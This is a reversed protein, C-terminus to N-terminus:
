KLDKAVTDRVATRPDESIYKILLQVQDPIDVLTHASLLTLTHLVVRTFSESPYSPLMELCMSRVVQLLAYSRSIIVTWQIELLFSSVSATQADHYMHQFIPMLKVKMDLPTAYGRVMDLIKDCANVAFTKSHAAFRGAAFIAAHLECSDHSDLASRVNHHVQKREPIISALAGLARLTLARAVPDNQRLVDFVRKVLEDISTIKDLHRQSQKLVRLVCLRVFNPGQRFVDALKLAASNILIPYPYKTFLAPFRVAAEAVEGLRGCRLNQDLEALAANADGGGVGMETQNSGGSGGAGGSGGGGLAHGADYAGTMPSDLPALM